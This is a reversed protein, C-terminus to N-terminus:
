KGKLHMETWMIGHHSDFTTGLKYHLTTLIVTEDAKSKSFPQMQTVSFACCGKRKKVSILVVKKVGIMSCCQNFHM